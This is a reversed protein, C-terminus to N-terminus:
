IEYSLLVTLPQPVFKRTSLTSPVRTGFLQGEAENIRTPVGRWVSRM